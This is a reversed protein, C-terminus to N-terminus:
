TSPISNADLLINDLEKGQYNLVVRYSSAFRNLEIRGDLFVSNEINTKIDFNVDISDIPAGINNLFYVFVSLGNMKVKSNCELRIHLGSETVQCKNFRIFIPAICVVYPSTAGNYYIKLLRSCVDRVDNYTKNNIRISKAVSEFVNLENVRTGTTRLIYSPFRIGYYDSAINGYLFDFRWKQEILELSSQLNGFHTLPVLNRLFGDFNEIRHVESVTGVTDSILLESFNDIQDKLIIQMFVIKFTDSKRQRFMYSKIEFCNWLSLEKVKDVFKCDETITDESLLNSISLM